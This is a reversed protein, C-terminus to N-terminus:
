EIKRWLEDKPYKAWHRLENCNYLAIVEQSKALKKQVEYKGSLEYIRHLKINLMAAKYPLSTDFSRTTDANCCTLENVHNLGLLHFRDYSGDVEDLFHTMWARIYGTKDGWEDKALGIIDMMDLEHYCGMFEDLTKGHPVGMIQFLEKDEKSLSYWFDLAVKATKESDGWVDPAVLIEVGLEKAMDLYKDIPYVERFEHQGNDLIVSAGEQIRKKYFHFLAEEREVWQAVTLYHEAKTDLGLHVFPPITYYHM